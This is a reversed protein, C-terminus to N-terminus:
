IQIFKEQTLDINKDNIIKGTIRDILITNRSDLLNHKLVFKHYKESEYSTIIVFNDFCLDIYRKSEIYTQSRFYIPKHSEIFDKDEILILPRIEGNEKKVLRVFPQPLLIAGNDSIGNIIFIWEEKNELIEFIELKKFYSQDMVLEKAERLSIM